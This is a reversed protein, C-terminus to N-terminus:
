NTKIQSHFLAENTATLFYMHDSTDLVECISLLGAASRCIKM